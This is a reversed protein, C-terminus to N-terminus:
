IKYYSSGPLSKAKEKVELTLEDVQFYNDIKIKENTLVGISISMIPFVSSTDKEQITIYGKTLDEQPYLFKIEEDFLSIIEQCISDVKDISTIVVFEDGGRHGIFDTLNGIKKITENIIQATLKIVEDGKFFGYVKNFSGLHDLDFYLIAFKEEQYIRKKIEEKIFFNGPLGTLPNLSKEYDTRRLYTNIQLTLKKTDFVDSIHSDAGSELIKIEEVREKVGFTIIPISTSRPDNKLRRCINIVAIDALSANLLILDPYINYVKELVEEGSSACVTDFGDKELGSIVLKLNLLYEDGVLIRKNLTRKRVTRNEELEIVQQFISVVKSDFERGASEKLQRIADQFSLAPRYPRNATMAGFADVVKIISAEIPIEDECLGDPYGKGDPSEHHSRVASLIQTPFGVPTLIRESMLPHKKVIKLEINNLKGSKQLLEEDIGIKGIDHLLASIKIFEIERNELGIEQAISAAYFAKKESHGQNYADKVEVMESIRKAIERMGEYIELNARGDALQNSLVSLKRMCKVFETEMKEKVEKLKINEGIVELSCL